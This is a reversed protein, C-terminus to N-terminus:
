KGYDDTVRLVNDVVYNLQEDSMTHFIPLNIVKTTMWKARSCNYRINEKKYRTFFPQEYVPMPYAVRIDIGAEKLKKVVTDRNEVLIPVFFWANKAGERITPLKINENRNFKSYYFEGIQARRELIEGFKENQKLGIAAQLDTMRANTGLIRHIYKQKLDEGQNRRMKISEAFEENETFVMGGEITTMLKAIHFSTTCVVGQKCLKEGKFEGGLSQAGDQLLPIGTEKSVRQLNIHDAPNGGYDIYVVCKTKDTILKEVSLPDINFTDLEIDAFVPIAHQYLVSSVTAIYTMAPVIVEDGPGVGLSKLALDLADTGNSVAVAFKVGLYQCMREEFARTRPGMGLWTSDFAASIEDKERKDLWPDAWPVKV